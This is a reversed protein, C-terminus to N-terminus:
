RVAMEVCVALCLPASWVSRWLGLRWLVSHRLPTADLPFDRQQEGFQSWFTFM